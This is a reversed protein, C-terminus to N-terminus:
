QIYCCKSSGSFYMGDDDLITVSATDPDRILRDREQDSLLLPQGNAQTALFVSDLTASFTENYETFTDSIIDISLDRNRDTNTFFFMQAVVQSYDAEDGSGIILVVCSHM